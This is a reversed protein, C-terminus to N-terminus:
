TVNVLIIGIINVLKKTLNYRIIFKIIEKTPKVHVTTSIVQNYRIM